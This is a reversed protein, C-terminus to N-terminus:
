AGTQAHARPKLLALAVVFAVVFAVAVLLIEYHLVWNGIRILAIEDDTLPRLNAILAHAKATMFAGVVGVGVDVALAVGCAILLAVARRTLLRSAMGKGRTGAQRAGM